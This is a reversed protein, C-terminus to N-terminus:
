PLNGKKIEGTAQNYDNRIKDLDSERGTVVRSKNDETQNKKVLM